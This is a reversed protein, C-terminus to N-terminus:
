LPKADPKLPGGGFLALIRHQLRVVIDEPRQWLITNYQRVDFHLDNIHDERCCFLSRRGLGHAFGVEYYVGGRHGTFDAVVFSSRRIEAIIRDDIKGDHEKRDIRLPEYGAERIAPGIGEDYAKAVSNDFWMAVFAQSSLARMGRIEEYILHGKATIYVDKGPHLFELAGLDKLYEALGHCDDWHYSWSAVRLRQDLPDVTGVLKGDLTRLAAGLYLDARKKVTPRPHSRIWEVDGQGVTLTGGSATQESVWSGVLFALEEDAGIAAAAESTLLYHGCARCDVDSTRTGCNKVTAGTWKCLPCSMQHEWVNDRTRCCSVPSTSEELGGALTIWDEERQRNFKM